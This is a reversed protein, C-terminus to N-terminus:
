TEKRNRSRNLIARVYKLTGLKVHSVTLQTTGVIRAIETQSKDTELLDLIQFVQEDTLKRPGVWRGRETADRANDAHDGLYLHDPNICKRNDCKHLVLSGFPIKGKSLEYAMRHTRQTGRNPVVIKGYGGADLQGLWEICGNGAKQSRASLRDQLLKPPRSM